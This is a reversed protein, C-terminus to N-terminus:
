MFYSCCPSTLIECRHLSAIHQRTRFNEFTLPSSLKRHWKVAASVESFRWEPGSRRQPIRLFDARCDHSMPFKATRQSKLIKVCSPVESRQMTTFNGFTLAAILQCLFHLLGNVKSFNLVPRCIVKSCRLWIRLVWRHLWKKYYYHTRRHTHRHARACMRTGTHTQTHINELFNASCESSVPIKATRQCQSNCRIWSHTKNPPNWLNMEKKTPRCM